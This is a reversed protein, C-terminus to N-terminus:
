KQGIARRAVKSGFHLLLTRNVRGLCCLEDGKAFNPNREVFYRIDAVGLEADGIPAVDEKLRGQAEPHCLLGRDARWSSAFFRRGLDDLVAREFDPTERDHRPWHVPVNRTLTLYTKYGKSVLYWFVCVRPARLKASVLYRFFARHLAKTQGHYRPDIVTDGTFVAVYPRGAAEGTYLQLTCFGQVSGDTPDSLLVVDRKRSLDELFRTRAVDHYYREFLKWMSERVADTLKAIAVIRARLSPRDRM